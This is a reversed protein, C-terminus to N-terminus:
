QGFAYLTRELGPTARGSRSPGGGGTVVVGTTVGLVAVVALGIALSRRWIRRQGVGDLVGASSPPSVPAPAVPEEIVAAADDLSAGCEPCRAAWESADAGCNACRVV